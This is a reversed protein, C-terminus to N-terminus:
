RNRSERAARRDAPASRGEARYRELLHTLEEVKAPYREYVNSAERIDRGLQFLQGPPESPDHPIPQKSVGGGHQGLILKWDGQRIALTGKFSDNVIADRTAQRAPQALLAGLFSFSDEGANEPLDVGFFDAFTALMDTLAILSEDASDAPVHKPWRAILPVRVGGEYVDTKQGRLVGNVAHGNITAYDMPEYKVVAGNDSTFLVLTDSVLEAEDLANLVEGVSWDLEALFDGYVGIDSEGRFRPDPILPGHINRHALYLFFPQQKSQEKLWSVARETLMRALNEHEYWAAKGGQVGLRATWGNRPRHLYGKEYGPRRDPTIRMPDNPDLGIVRDNEIIIHPFQGVHPFGWFYDFGRQLPGPRLARNYDPGLEDDWGPAEPSGFGLHWKGICATRYGQGQFLDGLTLRDGSILLPDNAWVCSSQTWTRWAYRGTLLNYRTPTCVSSPSHADTFRRGEHALRDINPTKVKTAGYCSLDGYGLDDALILVVNPRDAAAVDQLLPLVTAATAIIAIRAIVEPIEKNQNATFPLVPPYRILSDFLPL